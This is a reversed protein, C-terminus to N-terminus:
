QMTQPNTVVYLFSSLKDNARITVHQPTTGGSMNGSSVTIILHMKRTRLICDLNDDSINSKFITEVPRGNSIYYHSGSVVTDKLTASHIPETTSYLHMPQGNADLVRLNHEDFLIDNMDFSLPMTNVFRLALYASDGFSIHERFNALASDITEFPMEMEMEYKFQNSRIQLPFNAEIKTATTLSDLMISDLIFSRPDDILAAEMVSVSYAVNVDMDYRISRPNTRLCNSMDENDALVVNKGALLEAVTITDTNDAPTLITNGRSGVVTLYVGTIYPTLGYQNMLAQSNPKGYAKLFTSLSVYTGILDVSDVKDFLDINIAGSFHQRVVVISDDGSTKAMTGKSSRHFDMTGDFTDSYVFSLFNTNPDCALVADLEQWTGLLNAINMESYGIPLGLSPHFQGTIEFDHGLADFDDGKVCGCLLAASLLALFTIKRM